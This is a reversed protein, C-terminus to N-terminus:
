APDRTVSGSATQRPRAQVCWSGNRHWESPEVRLEYGRWHGLESRWAAVTNAMERTLGDDITRWGDDM